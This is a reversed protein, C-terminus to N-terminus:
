SSAKKNYKIFLLDIFDLLPNIFMIVLGILFISFGYFICTSNLMSKTFDFTHLNDLAYGDTWVMAGFFVVLIGGIFRPIRCWRSDCVDERKKM